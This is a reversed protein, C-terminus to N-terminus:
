KPAAAPDTLITLDKVPKDKADLFRACAGSPGDGQIVAFRVVNLGKNLTLPKSINDDQNVARSDYDRVVEKGNVWWLSSDDSGIALKVDKMEAPAVVYAVGWVIISETPMNHDTAFQVIDISFDDTKVDRWTMDKGGVKVKDGPKPQLTLQDKFYEKAFYPKEVDETHDGGAIEIPDLVVWNRIFGEADPKYTKPADAGLCFIGLISLTAALTLSTRNKM